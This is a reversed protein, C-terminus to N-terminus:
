VAMRGQWLCQMCAKMCELHLRCSLLFACQTSQLCLEIRTQDWEVHMADVRPETYEANLTLNALSVEVASLAHAVELAIGGNGVLVIRRKGSLRLALAEITGQDRLVVVHPGHAVAQIVVVGQASEVASAASAELVTCLALASLQSCYSCSSSHTSQM